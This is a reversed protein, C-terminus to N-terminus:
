DSRGGLSTTGAIHHRLETTHVLLKDLRDSQRLANRAADELQPFLGASLKTDVMEQVMKEVRKTLGGRLSRTFLMVLIGSWLVFFLGAALYFDTSLLPVDNFFSEYFFNRGVRYLVFGLYGAFLIEYWAKTMIGSHKRALDQIIEDVKQGANGVFQQEVVAAQHRLDDLSQEQLLQSRFGCSEVHGGIVIEAERLASDEISLQGVRSLSSEAMQEKRKQDLWRVGQVTGLLAMQATTRVRFFTMSAIISGLGNYTKLMASFPSMGWQDTVASLLRREWLGRSSLLDDKLRSALQRSLQQRQDALALQLSSLDERREKLVTQCRSLAAQLLDVVNARRIQVRASARLQTTLLDILRGLDGSPKQGAQQEQLGRVSDVFFIEPVDFSEETLLKRWDDRIDEDLDAHSQVFVMRCGSAAALLEQAVRASRYKQQTSVYLLVDCYPLLTRLRELNTGAVDDENTDPDPCDLIMIDRLIEADRQVIDMDGLPLGLVDLETDRHAILTPRRTTPRQRGSRTCEEGLLANVLSSKGTGTGGFTAVVLPAELRIQLSQVRDLVRKLLQQCRSQPEWQTAESSWEEVQQRLNDIATLLELYQISTEQM